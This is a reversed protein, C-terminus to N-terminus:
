ILNKPYMLCQKSLGILDYNLTDSSEPFFYENSNDNSVGIHEYYEEVSNRLIVKKNRKRKGKNKKGVRISHMRVM